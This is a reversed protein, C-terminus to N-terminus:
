RHWFWTKYGKEIECFLLKSIKDGCLLNAKSLEKLGKEGLHGLEYAVTPAITSGVSGQVNSRILVYLTNKLGKIIPTNGKM